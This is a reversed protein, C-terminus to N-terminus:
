LTDLSGSSRTRAVEILRELSFSRQRRSLSPGRETPRSSKPEASIKPTLSEDHEAVQGLSGGVAWGITILHPAPYNGLAPKVRQQAPTAALHTPKSVTNTTDQSPCSSRTLPLRSTTQSVARIVISTPFPFQSYLTQTLLSSSKLNM